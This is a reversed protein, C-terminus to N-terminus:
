LKIAIFSPHLPYVRWESIKDATFQFIDVCPFEFSKNNTTYTIGMDYDYIVVDDVEWTARVMMKDTRIPAYIKQLFEWLSEIGRIEDMAGPKYLVKETFFTNFSDKNKDKFAKLMSEVIAKKSHKQVTEVSDGQRM